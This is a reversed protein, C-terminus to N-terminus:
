FSSARYVINGDFITLLVETELMERPPITLIDRSLLVLDAFKGQEISGKKQEQFEAFASGLTYLEIAKEISLCQQPYWGNRPEGSDIHKRTVASYLGRMPDLPEVPWDTGFAIGANHQLITKWAYAGQCRQQLRDYAWRLDSTCHTPQMSAVVGLTGMREIDEDRMVQAHEIRHRSDRKGYKQRAAAFGNLAMWCAKNGIAHLGVQLKLSEAICIMRNLKEQKYQPLGVTSADDSYPEFFYATRSGLTGDLFGKLLGLRLQHGDCFPQYLDIVKLLSDPHQLLAFDLWETVRLTLKGAKDLANYLKLVSIGSNDQISTVGLRRAHKVATVIARLKQAKTVSPIIGNVLAMASEKLIGTPMYEADKVIEGGEPNPTNKDIGALELALSNAWGVHGDVRRVFVPNEACVKDLMEKHPWRGQNFVTHDWGRGTIWEGKELHEAKDRIREQIQELTRCHLLNVDLLQMGGSVFHLHADNFGPLLLKQKADLLRTKENVFTMASDTSGVFAIRNDRIVVARALPNNRDVTWVKANTIILGGPQQQCGFLMAVVTLVYLRKM